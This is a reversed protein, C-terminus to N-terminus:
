TSDDGRSLAKTLLKKLNKYKPATDFEMKWISDAFDKLHIAKDVCLTDLTLNKKERKLLEFKQDDSYGEYDGFIERDNLLYILLFCLSMLDDKRSTSTFTMANISAFLYNGGFRSVRTKAIHHGKELYKTACGFDILTLKEGNLLANEPKIDNHIYGARHTDQLADLM